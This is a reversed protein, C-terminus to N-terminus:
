SAEKRRAIYKVLDEHAVLRRHGVLFSPLDGANLLNYVSQRALGGLLQGVEDVSYAMRAPVSPTERVPRQVEETVNVHCANCPM